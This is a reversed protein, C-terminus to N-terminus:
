GTSVEGKCEILFNAYAIKAFPSKPYQEHGGRLIAEGLDMADPDQM